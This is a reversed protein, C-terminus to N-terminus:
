KMGAKSKLELFKQEIWQSLETTTPQFDFSPNADFSNYWDEVQRIEEASAIGDLYKEILTDIREVHM